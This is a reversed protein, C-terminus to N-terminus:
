APDRFLLVDRRVAFTDTGTGGEELVAHAYEARLMVAGCLTESHEPAHASGLVLGPADIFTPFGGVFGHAQAWDQTARFRAEFDTASTNGLQSIPIDVRDAAEPTLVIMGCVIGRGYDAHFFTPFAGAYLHNRIVHGRADIGSGGELSLQASAWTNAARIRATFDSLSVNGLQVLPVDHWAGAAPRIFVTGGLHDRGAVFEYFTPFGGLFGLAASAEMRNRFAAMATQERTPLAKPFTLPSPQTGRRRVVFDVRVLAIEHFLPDAFFSVPITAWGTVVQPLNSIDSGNYRVMVIELDSPRDDVPPTFSDSPAPDSRFVGCTVNPPGKQLFPVSWNVQVWEFHETPTEFVDVVRVAWRAWGSTGTLPFTSESRWEGENSPEIRGAGPVESPYWPDQWDGNDVDNASYVLPNDWDNHISGQFERAPM